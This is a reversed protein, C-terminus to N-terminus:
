TITIALKLLLASLNSSDDIFHGYFSNDHKIKTGMVWSKDNVVMVVRLWLNEAILHHHHHLPFNTYLNLNKQTKIVIRQKLVRPWCLFNRGYHKKRLIWDFVALLICKLSAKAELIPSKWIKIHAKKNSSKKDFSYTQQLTQQNSNFAIVLNGRNRSNRWRFKMWFKIM